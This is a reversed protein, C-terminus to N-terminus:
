PPTGVNGGDPRSAIIPAGPLPRDLKEPGDPNAVNGGNPRSAIILEGPLPRNTRPLHRQLGSALDRYAYKSVPAPPRKAGETIPDQATKKLPEERGLGNADARARLRQSPHGFAGPYPMPIMPGWDKGRPGGYQQNPNPSKPLETIRRPSLPKTPGEKMVDEFTKTPPADKGLLDARARVDISQFKAMVESHGIPGPDGPRTPPDNIVRQFQSDKASCSPNNCGPVPKALPTAPIPIALSPVAILTFLAALLALNATLKM